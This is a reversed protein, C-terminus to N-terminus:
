SAGTNKQTCGGDAVFEHTDPVSAATAEHPQRAPPRVAAGVKGLPRGRGQVNGPRQTEEERARDTWSLWVARVRAPSQGQGREKERSVCWGPSRDESSERPCRAAEGPVAHSCPWAGGEARDTTVGCVDPGAQEKLQMCVGDQMHM